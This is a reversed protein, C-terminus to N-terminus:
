SPPPPNPPNRQNGYWKWEGNEKIISAGYLPWKSGNTVTFGALYARDGAPVFDTIGVEFSTITSIVQRLQREAEGKRNGTNLYGDSYLTMVKQVDHSLVDNRYRDLFEQIDPPVKVPEDKGAEYQLSYAIAKQDKGIARTSYLNMGVKPMDGKKTALYLFNMDGLPSVWKMEVERAPTGDKLQSPKDSVVTVDKMGIHKYLTVLLDATKDLPTPNGIDILLRESFDPTGVQFAVQPAGPRYEVWEKPYSVTFRPYGNVYLGPIPSVFTPKLDPAPSQAHILTPFNGTLLLLAIFLSIAVPKKVPGGESLSEIASEWQVGRSVDTLCFKNRNDPSSIVV